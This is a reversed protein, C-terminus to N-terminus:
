PYLICSRVARHRLSWGYGTEVGAPSLIADRMSCSRSDVTWCSRTLPRFDINRASYLSPTVHGSATVVLAHGHASFHEAVAVDLLRAGLGGVEGAVELLDDGFESP